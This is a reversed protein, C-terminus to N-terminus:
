GGGLRELRYGYSYVPTLRFGATPRLNLKSRVRSVHMDLSRSNLGPDGGWIAEILYNRSLARHLNRFLVLALAFEKATLSVTEGGYTVTSAAPDFVFGAHEEARGEGGRRYARRLLANVRAALVAPSLPKSLFDDAGAELGAVVDADENRSTVLLMPPPPEMNLRVWQIVELGSRDPLTWDVILLDFTERRLASLLAAARTFGAASCGIGEVVKSIAEVQIPDDDLVAIKM